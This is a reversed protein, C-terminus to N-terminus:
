RGNTDERALPTFQPLVFGDAIEEFVVTMPMGVRLAAPNDVVVNTLLRVVPQEVLEVLGLCLPVVDEFGPVFSQESITYSYLTGRGSVDRFALATAGCRRCLLGPPHQLAGCDTCAQIALRHERAASWFPETWRDPVPV